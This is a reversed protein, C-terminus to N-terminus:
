AQASVHLRPLGLSDFYHNRLAQQVAPHGSMRWFEDAFRCCGRSRRLENFRNHGNQLQRWLYSRLRRRLWAELNALVRPTLCFGFYGRWGILYPTVDEILQELSIGRTRCGCSGGIVSLAMLGNRRRSISSMAVAPKAGLSLVLIDAVDFAKGIEHAPRRVLGGRLIDMPILQPQRRDSRRYRADVGPGRRQPEEEPDRQLAVIKGIRDHRHALRAAERNNEARFFDTPKEGRRRVDLV